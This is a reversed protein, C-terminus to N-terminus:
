RKLFHLINYKNYLFLRTGRYYTLAIENAVYIFKRRKWESWHEGESIFIADTILGHRASIAFM